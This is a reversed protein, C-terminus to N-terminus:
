QLIPPRVESVERDRLTISGGLFGSSGIEMAYLLVRENGQTRMSTPPGLAGIVELESMGNRIQRWKKGDLWQDSRVPSAAGTVASTASPPRDPRTRLEDVQRSLGMVQRQLNRVEQELFSIRQEDAAMATLPMLLLVLLRRAM